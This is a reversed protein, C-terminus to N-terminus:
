RFCCRLRGVHSATFGDFQEVSLVVKGGFAGDRVDAFLERLTTVFELPSLKERDQDAVGVFFGECACFVALANPGVFGLALLGWM